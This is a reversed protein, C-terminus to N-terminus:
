ITCGKKEESLGRYIKIWKFLKWHYEYLYMFVVLRGYYNNMTERSSKSMALKLERLCQQPLKNVVRSVKHM